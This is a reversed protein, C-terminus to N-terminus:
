RAAQAEAHECPDGHARAAAIADILEGRTVTKLERLALRLREYGEKTIPVRQM